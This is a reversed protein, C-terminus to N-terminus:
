INPYGTQVGPNFIDFMENSPVRLNFRPDVTNIGLYQRMAAHVHRPRITVGNTADVALTQPNLRLSQWRPGTAGVARNGWPANKQMLVATGGSAWHDNGAGNNLPTRGFDTYVYVLLRDAIGLTEAKDWFYSVINTARTLNQNINGDVNNHTDFGGTNVQITSTIGAQAAVLGAHMAEFGQDFNAPLFQSIRSLMARSGGAGMFQDGVINARPPQGSAQMAAVRELRTANVRNIDAQKMFDTTASAANPTILSRFSGANPIPTPAVLGVSTMFGGANMWSMPLAEGHTKAFLEVINPYGMDLRGTAQVRVGDGHSNTETNIGNVIMTMPAFRTLFAANSGRPAMRLNGGTVATQTTAYTTLTRDTERPDTWYGQAIGGNLLVNVLIRGQYGNGASPQALAEPALGWSPIVLGAASAVRFFERRDM